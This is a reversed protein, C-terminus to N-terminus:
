IENKEREIITVLIIVVVFALGSEVVGLTSILTTSLLNAFIIREYKFVLEDIM